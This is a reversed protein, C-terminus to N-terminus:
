AGTKLNRRGYVEEWSLVWACAFWWVCIAVFLSEKEPFCFKKVATIPLSEERVYRMSSNSRLSDAQQARAIAILDPLLRRAEEEGLRIIDKFKGFDAATYDGLVNNAFDVLVDVMKRQKLTTSPTLRM